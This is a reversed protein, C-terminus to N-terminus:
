SEYIKRFDGIKILNNFCFDWQTRMNVCATLYFGFIYDSSITSQYLIFNQKRILWRSKLSFSGISHTSEYNSKFLNTALKNQLPQLFFPSFLNLFPQFFNLSRRLLRRYIWPNCSFITHKESFDWWMRPKTRQKMCGKRIHQLPFKHLSRKCLPLQKRNQRLQM